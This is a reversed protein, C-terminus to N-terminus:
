VTAMIVLEGAPAVPPPPVVPKVSEVEAVLRVIIGPPVAVAVMVTVGPLENSPLTVRPALPNGLPTVAVKSMLGVAPVLTSVSVALVEAVTPSDGTVMVPLEPEWVAVVLM